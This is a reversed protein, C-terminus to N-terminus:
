NAFMCGDWPGIPQLLFAEHSTTTATSTVLGRVDKSSDPNDVVVAEVSAGWAELAKVWGLSSEGVVRVRVKSRLRRGIGMRSTIAQLKGQFITSSTPGWDKTGSPGLRSLLSGEEGLSIENLM